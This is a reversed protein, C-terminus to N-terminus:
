ASAQGKARAQQVLSVLVKRAEAPTQVRYPFDLRFVQTCHLLDAGLPDIGVMRWAGGPRGALATAYLEVADAHDANMHDVIDAEAELLGEAGALDTLVQAAPLEVIRGFGGIYHARTTELEYMAFDPFGAYAEAEPHRALFRRLVSPDTAPRALGTLTVRGGALPNGLGDTGDVLVSARPDRELNRTHRALRSILFLPSGGPSTALLILSAYPHGTEHDLTGLAGKLATRVLRRSARDPTEADGQPAPASQVLSM